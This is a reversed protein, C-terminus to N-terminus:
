LTLKNESSSLELKTNIGAKSFLAWHCFFGMLIFFISFSFLLIYVMLGSHSSYHNVPGCFISTALFFSFPDLFGLSYLLLGMLITLSPSFTFIPQSLGLFSNTLEHPQCLPWYARFTFIHYNHQLLGFPKSLFGMSHFLYPLIFYSSSEWLILHALSAWPM